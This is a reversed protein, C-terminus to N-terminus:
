IAKIWKSQTQNPKLANLNCTTGHLPKADYKVAVLGAVDTQDSKVLNIVTQSNSKLSLPSQLRLLALLGSPRFGPLKPASKEAGGM